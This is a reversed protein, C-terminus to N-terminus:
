KALLNEHLMSRLEECEKMVRDNVKQTERAIVEYYDVPRRAFTDLKKHALILDDLRKTM